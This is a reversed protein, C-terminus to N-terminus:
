KENSFKDMIEKKFNDWSVAGISASYEDIEELSTMGAIPNESTVIEENIKNLSNHFEDWSMKAIEELKM